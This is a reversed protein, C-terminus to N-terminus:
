SAREGAARVPTEPVPTSPVRRAIRAQLQPGNVLRPERDEAQEQSASRAGTRCLQTVGVSNRTPMYTAQLKMTPAAMCVRGSVSKARTHTQAPGPHAEHRESRHQAASLPQGRPSDGGRVEVRMPARLGRSLRVQSVATLCAHVASALCRHVILVEDTQLDFILGIRGAGLPRQPPKCRLKDVGVEGQGLVRVRSLPRTDDIAGSVRPEGIAPTQGPVRHPVAVHEVPHLELLPSEAWDDPDAEADALKIGDLRLQGM